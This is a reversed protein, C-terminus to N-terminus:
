KVSITLSAERVLELATNWPARADAHGPCELKCRALLDARSFAYRAALVYEGPQLKWGLISAPDRTYLDLRVPWEVSTGPEVTAFEIGALFCEEKRRGWRGRNSAPKQEEGKANRVQITVFPWLTVPVANKNTVRIVAVPRPARSEAPRSQPAAAVLEFVVNETIPRTAARSEPAQAGLAAAFLGTLFVIPALVNM